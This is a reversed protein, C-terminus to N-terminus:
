CAHSERAYAVEDCLDLLVTAPRNAQFWACRKRAANSLRARLDPNQLAERIVRAMDNADHPDFYVAAEGGVEPISTVGSAAMPAGCAMAELLPIGFGEWVSPYVMLATGHYLAALENEELFGTLIVDPGLGEKEWERRRALLQSTDGTVVLKYRCPGERNLRGVVQFLRGLNKRPDVGGTYLLYASYIGLRRLVGDIEAQSISRLFSAPLSYPLLRLKEQPVGLVELLERRSFESGTLIRCAKRANWRLLSNFYWRAHLAYNEPFRLTVLDHVTLIVPKRFLLPADVYPCLFVDIRERRLTWPLQV